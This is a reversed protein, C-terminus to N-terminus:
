IMRLVNELIKFGNNNDLSLLSEPHFQVAWIPQKKHAIAMIIGYESEAMVILDNPLSDKDAYLSHYLGVEVESDINSFINEHVKINLKASKGHMPFDLVKLKG